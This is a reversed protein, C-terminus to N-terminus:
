VWEGKGKRECCGGRFCVYVVRKCKSWVRVGMRYNMSFYSKGRPPIKFSPETRSFRDDFSGLM